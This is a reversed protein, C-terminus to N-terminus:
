WIGLWKWWLGGVLTWILLYVVSLAAGIGWWAKLSVYRLGFVVPAPGTGYHTLGGFLGSYFAFLLAALMPPTGVTIAVAVFPVYMSTVHATIGAFLYHSYYYILGLVILALPWSANDVLTVVYTSLWGIVGLDVLQAALTILVSLWIMIDWALEEAILDRWTLVGSVLLFALGIFAAQTADLGLQKGFIWLVLLLVFAFLMLGESLRLPGMQALQEAAHASAGSVYRLTPPALWYTILPLVALSFLGPVIAAQAWLAWTIDIGSGAALRVIIPNAAMATIFMTSTIVTGHFMTIALYSGMRHATGDEPRSGLAQSMSKLIPALIGGARATNSPVAPAMVLDSLLMGYAIGQPSRAFVRLFLYAIRAALGTKIFGRSIFCATIILWIQPSAFGALATELPVTQSVTAATLGLLAVAGMPLPRLIIALLTALFIGLMHWGQQSVGTPAALWWFAAGVLAAPILLWRRDSERAAHLHDPAGIPAAQDRHFAKASVM